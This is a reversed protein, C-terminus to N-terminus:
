AADACGGRRVPMRYHARAADSLVWVAAPSGSRTPRTMPRGGQCGREVWGLNVLELRRPAESHNPLDLAHQLEDDTAGLPERDAIADLVRRRMTGARPAVRAAAARSEASADTRVAAHPEDLDGLGRPVATSTRYPRRRPITPDAQFPRAPEPELDFLRDTM